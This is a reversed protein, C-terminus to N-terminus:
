KYYYRDSSKMKKRVFNVNIFYQFETERKKKREKKGDEGVM